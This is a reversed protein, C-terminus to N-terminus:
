RFLDLGKRGCEVLVVDYGKRSFFADLLNRISQEDDIRSDQGHFRGSYFRHPRLSLLQWAQSEELFLIDFCHRTDLPAAAVM